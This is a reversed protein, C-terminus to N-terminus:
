EVIKALIYKNSVLSYKVGDVEVEDVAYRKFYVRDGVKLWKSKGVSIIEGRGLAGKESVGEPLVLGGKTTKLEEHKIFSRYGVAQVKMSSM